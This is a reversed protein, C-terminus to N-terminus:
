ISISFIFFIINIYKYIFIYKLFSNLFPKKKKKVHFSTLVRYFFLNSIERSLQSQNRILLNPLFSDHSKELSMKHIAIIAPASIQM